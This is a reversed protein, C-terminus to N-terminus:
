KEFKRKLREYIKLETKKNNEVRRKEEKIRKAMEVDSEDRIGVLCVNTTATDDYYGSDTEFELRLEDFDNKYKYKLKLLQEIAINLDGEISDKIDTLIYKRVKRKSM